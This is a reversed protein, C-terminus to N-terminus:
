AMESLPPTDLRARVGPWDERTVSYMVTDRMTGDPRRIHRRLVGERVAGLKEIARQSRTNLLDTKLQVREMGMEEFAHALLLRKMRRNAGSGHWRPHLWTWGIELGSHAARIDGYRTSGALEGGVEIVFPMQDNADLAAQYYAPSSPPSGMLRLEEACDQALACLAPIDAETLPRLRLDGDRLTLDHHM